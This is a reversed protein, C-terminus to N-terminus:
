WEKIVTKRNRKAISVERLWQTESTQKQDALDSLNIPPVDPLGNVRTGAFYAAGAVLPMYATDPLLFLDTLATLPPPIPVYRLEVSTVDQWDQDTGNMFLQGNLEYASYPSRSQFRAKYDQLELPGTEDLTGFHVEGGILLHHPPLDIGVHIQGSLPKTLDLYPIGSSDLRVLYGTKDVFFPYSAVVGMGETVQILAAVIIFTSTNNPLTTWAQTTTLQNATNSAIYRVQGAGKGALIRVVKNAFQNTTWAAPTYTLTLATASTVPKEGYLVQADDTDVELLSGVPAELESVVGAANLSAPLGGTTGVGATGVQNDSSIGFAISMVQALYTRNRSLAKSVLERQYGTLFRALSGNPVRRPDFAPHRDRAATLIESVLM